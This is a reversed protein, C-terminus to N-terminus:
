TKWLLGDVSLGEGGYFTILVFAAFYMAALEGGNLIPLPAAHATWYAIFMLLGSLAAALRTLLGIAVALGGLLEFLGVWWMPWSFVAAAEKGLVGFLKQLGHQMFLLGIVIRFGIYVKAKHTDLWAFM